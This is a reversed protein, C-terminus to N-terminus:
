SYSIHLIYNYIKNRTALEIYSQYNNNFNINKYVSSVFTM